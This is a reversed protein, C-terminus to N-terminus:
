RKRRLSYDRVEEGEEDTWSDDGDDNNCNHDSIRYCLTDRRIPEGQHYTGSASSSNRRTLVTVEKDNISICSRRATMINFLLRNEIISGNCNNCNDPSQLICNQNFFQSIRRNLKELNDEDSSERIDAIDLQENSNMYDYIRENKISEKENPTNSTVIQDNGNNPGIEESTDTSKRVEGEVREEHVFGNICETPSIETQINCNSLVETRNNNDFADTQTEMHVMKINRRDMPKSTFTFSYNSDTSGLRRHRVKKQNVIKQCVLINEAANKSKTSEMTVSRAQDHPGNLEVYLKSKVPSDPTNESLSSQHEPASPYGQDCNQKYIRRLTNSM